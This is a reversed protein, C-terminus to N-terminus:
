WTWNVPNYDELGASSTQLVFEDLQMQLEELQPSLYQEKM